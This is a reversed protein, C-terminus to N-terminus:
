STLTLKLSFFQLLKTLQLLASHGALVCARFANIKTYIVHTKIRM